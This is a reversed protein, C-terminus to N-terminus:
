VVGVRDVQQEATDRALAQAFAESIKQPSIDM